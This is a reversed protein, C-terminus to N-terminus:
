ALYPKLILAGAKIMEHYLGKPTFCRTRIGLIRKVVSVCTLLEIPAPKYHAGYHVTYQLIATPNQAMEQAIIDPLSNPYERVAMIHAMSNVMLTHGRSERLLHVHGFLPHLVRSWWNNGLSRDFVILWTQSDTYREM